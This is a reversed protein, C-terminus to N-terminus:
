GSGHGGEGGGIDERKARGRPVEDKAVARVGAM